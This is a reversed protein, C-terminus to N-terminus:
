FKSEYCLMGIIDSTEQGEKVNVDNVMEQKRKRDTKINAGIEQNGDNETVNDHSEEEMIEQQIDVQDHIINATNSNTRNKTEDVEEKQEMKNKNRENEKDGDNADQSQTQSQTQQMDTDSGGDASSSSSTTFASSGGQNRTVGDIMEIHIVFVSCKFTHLM